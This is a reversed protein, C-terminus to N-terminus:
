IPPPDERGANEEGPPSDKSLRPKRGQSLRLRDIECLVSLPDPHPAITRQAPLEPLTPYRDLGHIRLLHSPLAAIACNCAPCIHYGGKSLGRFKCFCSRDMCPEFEDLPFLTFVTKVKPNFYVYERTDMVSESVVGGPFPNDAINRQVEQSQNIICRYFVGEDKIIMHFLSPRPDIEDHHLLPPILINREKMEGEKFCLIYVNYKRMIAWIRQNLRKLTKWKGEEWGLTMFLIIKGDPGREYVSVVNRRPYFYVQLSPSLFFGQVAAVVVDTNGVGAPSSSSSFSM